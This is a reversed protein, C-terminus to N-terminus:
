RNCCQLIMNISKQPCIIYLVKVSGFVKNRVSKLWGVDQACRKEMEKLTAQSEALMDEEFSM